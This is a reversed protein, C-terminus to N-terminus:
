PSSTATISRASRRTTAVIGVPPPGFPMLRDGSAGAGGGADWIVRGIGSCGSSMGAISCQCECLTPSDAGVGTDIRGMHAGGPHSAGAATSIDTSSLFSSMDHQFVRDTALADLTVAGVGPDDVIVDGVVQATREALRRKLLCWLAVRARLNAFLSPGCRGFRSHSRLMWVLVLLRVCHWACSRPPVKGRTVRLSALSLPPRM